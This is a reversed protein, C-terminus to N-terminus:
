RLELFRYNKTTIKRGFAFCVPEKFVSGNYVFTHFEGKEGCIDVNGLRKIEDVFARDIERGLWEKGLYDANVTVVVAKFGSGIFENMLEERSGQWLPLYATLSCESCVREVWGRHADLDIDGFVGAEIGKKKFEKLAKKFEQEYSNWSARGQVLMIGMADAQEQMLAAPIGHSRSVRGTTNAMNLLFRIDAGQKQARFLSLMSEKGGSWSVFVRKNKM